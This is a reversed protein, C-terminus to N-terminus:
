EGDTEYLRMLVLALLMPAVEGSPDRGVALAALVRLVYATAVILWLMGPLRKASM